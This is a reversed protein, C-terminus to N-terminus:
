ECPLILFIGAPLLCPVLATSAYLFLGQAVLRWLFPCHNFSHTKLGGKHVHGYVVMMQATVKLWGDTDTDVTNGDIRFLLGKASIHYLRSIM